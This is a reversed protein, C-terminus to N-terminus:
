QHHCTREDRAEQHAHLKVQHPPSSLRMPTGTARAAADPRTGASSLGPEVSRRHRTVGAPPSGLSLAVSLLGGEPGRPKQSRPQLCPRFPAALACRAAPSLLPVAFGVPLLVSYARRAQRNPSVKAAPLSSGGPLARTPQQLGTAVGARSSHDGGRFPFLVRSVPGSACYRSHLPAANGACGGGFASENWAHPAFFIRLHILGVWQTGAKAPIVTQPHRLRRCVHTPAPAVPEQRPNFPASGGENRCKGGDPPPLPLAGKTGASAAM